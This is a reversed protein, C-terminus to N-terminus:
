LIDIHEPNKQEKIYSSPLLGFEAKFYKAFYKPNNFGVEYAIEAVTLQSKQLLLAARKLRINRIFEIPSKQTILLLKKYLAVRSMCLERSLEEVSFDPNAMNKEVVALAQKIFKEDATEIDIEAPSAEIQKKYTKRLAEHQILLNKIKSLLVEFNFPKTMYDNAGTELGKLLQEEGTLATLLIVPIHSTRKDARIKSCLDIGTMEPMSIDSVILDPHAALVKNWGQKGNQAEVIFYSQKLNDKLYFRFDENDEILLVVPKKHRKRSIDQGEAADAALLQINNEELHIIGEQKDATEVPLKVIFCAGKDPESHVSITGNHLGVFERTISLGIGSGQNVMSGPVESQFFRDFIKEQKDFPIGIGNDRIKIELMPGSGETEELGVEVEIRGGEHTFKFANSLLNFLIREVKDHDFATRLSSIGSQLSFKINKKEALDTFSQFSERIFAAIDGQKPHLKLEQVEMKRFDLLQNVLHLLRKANRQILQLHRSDENNGAVKVLGDLPALILSLPTRFEHSVNTFFKIKMMDLEHMRQAEQREQEIAFKAKIKRIGRKRIYFLIAAILLVYSFYAIGTQWFPPRIIISLTQGRDNWVGNDNSARVKFTYTGPDLNTYTVKRVRGDTTLWKNNFGELIYSYRNKEPNSYNLAAFEVSFINQDHDLIIERTESVSQELLVRNNVIEGPLVSKNFLNFDTFVIAPATKNTRINKPRFINFGNPGGFILEGGRTKLASNENFEREQLGDMEDYNKFSFHYRRGRENVSIHSLGNPTSVWMNHDDDELITLITNDPLGDTIGLSTFNKKQPDFVSLGDRTGAWILGRKDELLCIVNNNSLSSFDRDVHGYHIFSGTEKMLVDIGLATGIWLNGAKDEVLSSIYNSRISRANESRFHRFQGTNRDLLDLGNALTGIWLRHQSDEMIEWVRDDSISGPIRDDHKYHIFNKGDFCDLGGFYTGIWLKGQHDLFLSVIVDNSLSNSNYFDHTYQRFSNNARDFYVLGGGNTGIWLNGKGDEVFRNVDNYRLSNEVGAQKKYLPFKIISEHYYSIGRKFTGIWMIGNNDKYVANISNQALTKEDEAKNLLCKVQRSAPNILNIGGHDTAIWIIGKDDQSIGNIINTNLQFDPSARDYHILQRTSSDLYFVGLPTDTSYVWLNQRNDTFLRFFSSRSARSLMKTRYLIRKSGLDLQQLVGDNYVVWLHGNRTESIATIVKQTGDPGATRIKYFITKNAEPIYSYLGADTIIWFNGNQGKEIDLLLAKIGISALFIEPHRNFSETYPDYINFGNRTQIWLQNHPGESINVIYDDSLTSSDRLKHKFIKFSYGDYRNLGSMTGFWMFGKRDKLISNVQNHSLGETTKIQSFQYQVPQARLVFVSLLGLLFVPLLIRM